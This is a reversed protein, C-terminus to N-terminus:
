LVDTSLQASIFLTEAKLPTVMHCLKSSPAPFRHESHALFGPRLWLAGAVVRSIWFGLVRGTPVPWCVFSGPGWSVTPPRQGARSQDWVALM